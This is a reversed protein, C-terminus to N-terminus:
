FKLPLSIQDQYKWKVLEQRLIRVELDVRMFQRSPTRQSTLNRWSGFRWFSSLQKKFKQECSQPNQFERCLLFEHSSYRLYVVTGALYIAALILSVFTTTAVTSFLMEVTAQGSAPDRAAPRTKTM